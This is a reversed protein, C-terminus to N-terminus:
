STAVGETSSQLPALRHVGSKGLAILKAVERAPRNLRSLAVDAKRQDALVTPLTGITRGYATIAAARQIPDPISLLEDVWDERTKPETM